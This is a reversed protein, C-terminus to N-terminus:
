TLSVYISVANERTGYMISPNTDSIWSEMGDGTYVRDFTEGAQRRLMGNDQSGVLYLDPNAQTGSIRYIEKNQLGASIDTWTAGENSSVYLGGDTAAYIKGNRIAVNHLDVHLNGSGVNTCSGVGGENTSKWLDVGGGYFKNYNTPDIALAMNYDAQRSVINTLTDRLIWFNDTGEALNIYFGRSGNAWNGAIAAVYGPFDPTVALEVRGASPNMFAFDSDVVPNWSVGMDISKWITNTGSAYMIQPNTPHFEIDYFLGARPRSVQSNWGDTTRYIGRNCVMLQINSNSPHMLLKTPSFNVPFDYNTKEWTSGGDTSKFIGASWVEAGSHFRSPPPAPNGDGSLAYIVNPNNSSIELDAFSLLGLHDTLAEWWLGGNTTKWIGGNPTSVYIINDDTPHIDIKNIRGQSGGNKTNSSGLFQWAGHASKQLTSNKLVSKYAAQNKKAIHVPSGDSSKRRELYWQKRQYQKSRQIRQLTEENYPYDKVVEVAQNVQGSVVLSSFLLVIVVITKGM